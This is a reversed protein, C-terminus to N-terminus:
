PAPAMASPRNQNASIVEPGLNQPGLKVVPALTQAGLDATHQV